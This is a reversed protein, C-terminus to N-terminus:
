RTAAPGPGASPPTTALQDLADTLDPVIDFVVDFHNRGGVEIEATPTGAQRLRDVLARSQRKFEDTEDDGWAVVTPPFDGLDGLLPSNAVASDRDLGVADNITTGILPELLYIGSALVLGFPRETKRLGLTAMAALHAGASSGSVTIASPDLGLDNAQDRVTRIAARCEDVIEDLSAEPALTYDVAAFAQGRALCAPALFSSEASSLQQWYGGHIFVHLPIHDGPATSGITPPRFLDITNAPRSGYRLVTPPSQRRADASDDAYRQLYPTLNRDPLRTSPSYEREREDDGLAVGRPLRDTTGTM